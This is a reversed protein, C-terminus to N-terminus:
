IIFTNNRSIILGGIAVVAHQQLKINYPNQLIMM